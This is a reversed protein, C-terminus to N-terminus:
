DTKDRISLTWDSDGGAKLGNARKVIVKLEMYSVILLKHLGMFVLTVCIKIAELRHFDLDIEVRKHM